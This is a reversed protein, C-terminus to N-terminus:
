SAVRRSVSVAPTAPVVGARGRLALVGALQEALAHTAEHEDLYELFPVTTM